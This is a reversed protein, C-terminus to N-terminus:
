PEPYLDIVYALGNDYKHSITDAVANIRRHFDRNRLMVGKESVPVPCFDAIILLAAGLHDGSAIAADIPNM